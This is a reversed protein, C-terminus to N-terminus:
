GIKYIFTMKFNESLYKLTDQVKCVQIYWYMPLHQSHNLSQDLNNM